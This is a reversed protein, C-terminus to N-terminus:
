IKNNKSIDIKSNKKIIRIKLFKLNKALKLKKKWIKSKKFESIIVMFM